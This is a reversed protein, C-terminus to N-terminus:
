HCDLTLKIDFNNLTYKVMQIFPSLVLLKCYRYDPLLVGFAYVDCM